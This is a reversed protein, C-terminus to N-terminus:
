APRVQLASESEQDLYWVDGSRSVSAVGKSRVVDAADRDLTGDLPEESSLLRSGRRYAAASM